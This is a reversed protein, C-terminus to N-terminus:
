CRRIAFYHTAVYQFMEYKKLEHEEFKVRLGQMKMDPLRLNVFAMDKRRRLCIAGMLAQLITAGM